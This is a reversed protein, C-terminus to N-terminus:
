AKRERTADQAGAARCARSAGAPRADAWRARAGSAAARAQAPADTGFAAHISLAQAADAEGLEDGHERAVAQVLAIQEARSLGAFDDTFRM